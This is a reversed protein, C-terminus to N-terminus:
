DIIIAQSYLAKWNNLFKTKSQTTYANIIPDHLYVLDKDYGVLLVCHKGIVEQFTSGTPQKNSGVCTWLVGNVLSSNGQTCWVIVPKKKDIYSFLTSESCGSVNKVRSGAYRNMSNVLPSAFCGWSGDAYSTGPSGVFARFPDAGYWLSGEQYKEPGIPLNDVVNKVTVNYGSYRLLMTASVVENGNVYGSSSTTLYPVNEIIHKDDSVTVKCTTVKRGKDTSVKINAEGVGVAQVLGNTVKAVNLNSSEWVIDPYTANNPVITSVLTYAQGPTLKLDTSNLKLTEVPIFTVIVNVTGTKEPDDTSIATITTEGEAIAQIEGSSNVTAISEDSSRWLLDLNSADEPLVKAVFNYKEGIILELAEQAMVISEVPVHVTVNLSYLFVSPHMKTTINITTTGKSIGTVIGDDVEAIQPDDSSWAISNVVDAYESSNKPDLEIYMKIEEGLNVTTTDTRIIANNPIVFGRYSYKTYRGFDMEVPRNKANNLIVILILLGIVILGLIVCLIRFLNRKIFFM